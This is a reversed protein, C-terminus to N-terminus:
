YQLYRSINQKPFYTLVTPNGDVNTQLRRIFDKEYFQWLASIMGGTIEENELQNFSETFSEMADIITPDEALTIAHNQVYNFYSQVQRSRSNRLETIQYYINELIAEKGSTYGVYSIVLISAISVALLMLMLKSQISLRSFFKM